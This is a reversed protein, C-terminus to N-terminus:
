AVTHHFTVRQEVQLPKVKNGERFQFLHESALTASSSNIYKLLDKLIMGIYNIMSVKTSGKKSYDLDMGVYNHVEVGWVERKEGYISELYAYLMTSEFPDKRLVKLGNM